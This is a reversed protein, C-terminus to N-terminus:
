ITVTEVKSPPQSERHHCLTIVANEYAYQALCCESPLRLTNCSRVESLGAGTQKAMAEKGTWIKLFTEETPADSFMAREEETFWRAADRALREMPRGIIREVDIGVRPPREGEGLEVACVALGDAHSINFDLNENKLFPRGVGERGLPVEACDMGMETLAYQLLLIGAMSEMAKEKPMRLWSECKEGVDLHIQKMLADRSHLYQTQALYIKVM